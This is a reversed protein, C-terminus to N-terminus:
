KQDTIILTTNILNSTDIKVNSTNRTTLNDETEILAMAIGEEGEDEKNSLYTLGTTEEVNQISYVFKMYAVAVAVVVAGRLLMGIVAYGYLFDDDKEPTEM